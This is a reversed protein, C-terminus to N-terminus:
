VIIGGGLCIDNHYIAAIQGASVDEAPTKFNIELEHHKGDLFRVTGLVEGSSYRVKVKVDNMESDKPKRLWNFQKININSRLLDSKQGVILMNSSVDKRIVYLPYKYAIRLGKRQGVTFEYLGTHNGLVNGDMDVIPGSQNLSPVYKQIYDRYDMNGLFCLDQSDPRSATPLGWSKCRERVYPKRFEGLPLVTHELYEAPLMSLVYTQDKATDVGKKLVTLGDMKGISAYHGTAIKSAGLKNAQDLLVKWRIEANCRVCPNPTIGNSYGELFFEVVSQRFHERADIVYFPIDLIAAVRRALAMADLSCCRNLEEQDPASWLKLMVGIVDYGQEKLYAAAFSSDVGGSLGVVVSEKM